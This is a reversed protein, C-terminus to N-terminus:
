AGRRKEKWTKNVNNYHVIICGEAEVIYKISTLVDYTNYIIWKISSAVGDILHIMYLVYSRSVDILYITSAM